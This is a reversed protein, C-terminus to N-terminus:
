KQVYGNRPATHPSFQSKNIGNTHKPQKNEQNFSEQQKFQLCATWIFKNVQGDSKMYLTVITGVERSEMGQKRIM